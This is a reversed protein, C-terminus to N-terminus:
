RGNGDTGVRKPASLLDIETTVACLVQIDLGRLGRAACRGETWVMDKFPLDRFSKPHNVNDKQWRKGSPESLTFRNSLGQRRSDSGLPEREAGSGSRGLLSSGGSCMVGLQSSRDSKEAWWPASAQFRQGEIILECCQLAIRTEETGECSTVLRRAEQDSEPGSWIFGRLRSYLQDGVIPCGVAALQARLQHTRGTHLEIHLEGGEARLVTAQADRWKHRGEPAGCAAILRPVPRGFVADSIRHALRGVACRGQVRARYLKRVAGGQLRRQFSRAAAKGLALVVLGSTQVDLRNCPVLREVDVDDRSAALAMALIPVLWERGNSVHPACPVGAPKEVVLLDGHRVWRPPLTPYRKPETHVRLEGAAQVVSEQVSQRKPSVAPLLASGLREFFRRQPPRYYVAGALLELVM